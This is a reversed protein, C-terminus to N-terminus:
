GIEQARYRIYASKTAAVAALAGETLHVAMAAAMLYSSTTDEPEVAGTIRLFSATTGIISLTGAAIMAAKTYLPDNEIKIRSNISVGRQYIQHLSQYPNAGPHSFFLSPVQWFTLRGMEIQNLKEARQNGLVHIKERIRHVENPSRERAIANLRNIRTTLDAVEKKLKQESRYKWGIKGLITGTAIYPQYPAITKITETFLSKSASFIQSIM